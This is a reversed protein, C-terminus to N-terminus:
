RLTELAAVVQAIQADTLLRGKATRTNLDVGFPPMLTNPKVVRADVVWQMLQVKNYRTGVGDLPPAFTSQIGNKKGNADPITHCAICNGTRQDFMIQWGNAETATSTQGLAGAAVLCASIVTIYSPLTLM